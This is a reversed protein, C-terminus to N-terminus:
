GPDSNEKARTLPSAWTRGPVATLGLCPRVHPWGLSPLAAPRASPRISPVSGQQGLGVLLLLRRSPSVPPPPPPTPSHTLLHSEPHFLSPSFPSDPSSKRLFALWDAPFQAM